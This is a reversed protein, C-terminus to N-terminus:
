AAPKEHQGAGSDDAGGFDSRTEPTRERAKRFTLKFSVDTDPRDAKELHIVTDMQWERTKTGYAGGDDSQIQRDTQGIHRRRTASCTIAKRARQDSRVADTEAL